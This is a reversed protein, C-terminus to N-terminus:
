CKKKDGNDRREGESIRILSSNSKRVRDQMYKLLEKMNEIVKEM